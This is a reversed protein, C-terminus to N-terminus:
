ICQQNRGGQAEQVSWGFYVKLLPDNLLSRFSPADSHRSPSRALTRRPECGAVRCSGWDSDSPRASSREPGAASRCRRLGILRAERARATPDDPTPRPPRKAREPHSRVMRRCQLVM